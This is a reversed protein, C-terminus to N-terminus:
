VLSQYWPVLSSGGSQVRCEERSNVTNFYQHIPIKRQERLLQSARYNHQLVISLHYISTLLLTTFELHERRHSYLIGDEQIYFGLEYRVPSV